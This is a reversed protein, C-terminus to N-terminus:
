FLIYEAIAIELPLTPVVPDRKLAIEADLFLRIAKQIEALNIKQALDKLKSIFEDSYDKKLQNEWYPINKILMLNRLIKVIEKTLILLDFGEYYIENIFNISKDLNKEFLNNLFDLVRFVSVKGLFNEVAEVELKKIPNSALIIKELLTEADRLAGTSEEAILMLAKEDSEINENQCILKLKKVIDKLALRRFDFRQVRSLITAPIKEPETTVLIFIAHPPPEELTKLLANWAPETLMHAEDIIFVKFKGQLPKFGIHEKLNRIEDIGRNSAADLEIIDLFQSRNFSECNLCRNCPEYDSTLQLCNLAKAFIRATSTKGTGRQGSFLYGQPIDNINKLFNKLIQVIIEQGTIEKFSQPRYKRYFM